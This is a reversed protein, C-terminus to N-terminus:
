KFEVCIVSILPLGLSYLRRPLGQLASGCLGTRSRNPFLGSCDESHTKEMTFLNLVTKEARMKIKM